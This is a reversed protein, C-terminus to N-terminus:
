PNEVSDIFENWEPRSCIERLAKEQSWLDELWDMIEDIEEQTLEAQAEPISMGEGQQQEGPNISMNELTPFVEENDTNWTSWNILKLAVPGEAECTFVFSALNGDAIANGTTIGLFRIGEAQEWGPGWYDWSTSRNPGALILATGNPHETNDISSYHNM